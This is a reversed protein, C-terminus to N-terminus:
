CHGSYCKRSGTNVPVSHEKFGKSKVKSWNKSNNGGSKKSSKKAM